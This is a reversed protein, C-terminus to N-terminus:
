KAHAAAGPLARLAAKRRSRIVVLELVICAATVAYSGWVYAGYGGMAIFDGLSAWEM